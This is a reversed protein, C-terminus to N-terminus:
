TPAPQSSGGKTKAEAAALDASIRVIASATPAALVLGVIGFLAGGGITLVLVALPHLGLAAGYAIPQVIQQLPGNALVEIVALAAAEEPGAGGLALLVAFAGASWAGLYPIYAGILTVVAITGALPVGLLLAAGGIVIANFAAVITVGLFYGRLSQLSRTSIVHAVEPPVGMHREGWARITPGDILLFILILTTMALFFVISSLGEIGAFVGKLLTDFSDSAGSSAGDNASQAKSDSVGLDTLEGEIKDAASTLHDSISATESAIGDLILYTALVGAAVILLLVFIAGVGRPIRHRQLWTVLPGAVAAIVGGAILPLIITSTLSLLWVVGAIAVAIGVLLWSTLGADRLWSPAVFVGSLESTDIEFLDEPQREGREQDAGRRRLRGRFIPM